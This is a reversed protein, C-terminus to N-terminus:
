YNSVQVLVRQWDIIKYEYLINNPITTSSSQQVTVTVNLVASSKNNHSPASLMMGLAVMHSFM